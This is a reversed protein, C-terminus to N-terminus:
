PESRGGSLESGAPARRTSNRTILCGEPRQDVSPPGGDRNPANRWRPEADPVPNPAVDWCQARFAGPAAKAVLGKTIPLSLRNGVARVCRESSAQHMATAHTAGLWPRAPLVLAAIDTLASTRRLQATSVACTAEMVVLPDSNTTTRPATSSPQEPNADAWTVNLVRSTAGEASLARSSGRSTNSSGTRGVIWIIVASM